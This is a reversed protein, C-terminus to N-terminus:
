RHRCRSGNSNTSAARGHRSRNAWPCASMCTGSVTSSHLSTRAPDLPRRRTAHDTSGAGRVSDCRRSQTSRGNPISAETMACCVSCRRPLRRRRHTTDAAPKRPQCCSKAAATVNPATVTAAPLQVTPVIRESPYLVGRFAVIAEHCASDVRGTLAANDSHPLPVRIRVSTRAWM